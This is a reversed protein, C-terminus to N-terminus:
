PIWYVHSDATEHMLPYIISERKRERMDQFLLTKIPLITVINNPNEKVVFGIWTYFNNSYFRSM